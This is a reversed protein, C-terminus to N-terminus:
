DAKVDVHVLAGHANYAYQVVRKNGDPRVTAEFIQYGDIVPHYYQVVMDGNGQQVVQTAQNARQLSKLAEREQTQSLATGAIAQRSQAKPVFTTGAHPGNPPSVGGDRGGHNGMDHM